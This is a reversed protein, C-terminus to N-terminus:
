KSQCSPCIYNVYHCEALHHVRCKKCITVKVNDSFFKTHGEKIIGRWGQPFGKSILLNFRELSVLAEAGAADVKVADLYVRYALLFALGHADPNSDLWDRYKHYVLLLLAGHQRREQNFLFWQHDTPTQGSRSQKGQLQQYKARSDAPKTRAVSSITVARAGLRALEGAIALKNAYSKSIHTM